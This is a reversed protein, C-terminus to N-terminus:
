NNIENLINWTIQSLTEIRNIGNQEARNNGVPNGDSLVAILYRGGVNGISNVTWSSTNSYKDNTASDNLWGNKLWVQTGEPVGGSVGWHQYPEVKEMLGNMTAISEPTLPSNPLALLKLVQLQDLATTQTLGWSGSTTTSEAGVGRFFEQMASSGGAKNWLYSAASNDSNGIMTAAESLDYGSLPQENAQRQLMTEALISYKVISATNFTTAGPTNWHATEGTAMDYVAIDVEGPQDAMAAEWANQLLEVTDPKRVEPTAVPTAEVSVVTVPAADPQDKAEATSGCATLAVSALGIALAAKLKDSKNKLVEM